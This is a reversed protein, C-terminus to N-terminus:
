LSIPIMFLHVKFTYILVNNLSRNNKERLLILIMEQARPITQDGM